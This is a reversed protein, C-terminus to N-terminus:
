EASAVTKINDNNYELGLKSAVTQIKDLSALENIKMSLSENRKEQKSVKNKMSELEINTKSLMAKSSVSCLPYGILLVILINILFKEGKLRKIKRRRTM